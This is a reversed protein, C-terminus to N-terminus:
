PQLRDIGALRSDFSLSIKYLSIEVGSVCVAYLNNTRSQHSRENTRVPRIGKPCAVILKYRTSSSPKAMSAQDLYRPSVRPWGRSLRATASARVHLESLADAVLCLCCPHSPLSIEYVVLKKLFQQFTQCRLCARAMLRQISFLFRKATGDEGLYILNACGQMFCECCGASFFPCLCPGIPLTTIRQQYHPLDVVKEGVFLSLKVSLLCQGYFIWSSWGTLIEPHERCSTSHQMSQSISVESCIGNARSGPMASRAPVNHKSPGTCKAPLNPRLLPLSM